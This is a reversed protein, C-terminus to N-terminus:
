PLVLNKTIREYRARHINLTKTRGEDGEAWAELNAWYSPFRAVTQDKMEHLANFEEEQIAVWDIHEEYRGLRYMNAAIPWPQVYERDRNDIAKDIYAALPGPDGKKFELLHRLIPLVLAPDKRDLQQVLAEARAPDHEIFHLLTQITVPGSVPRFELAREYYDSAVDVAGMRNHTLAIDMIAVPWDPNLELARTSHVLAQEYNRSWLYMKGLNAERFANDNDVEGFAARAKPFDLDRFAYLQGRVGRTLALEPNLAEAKDLLSEIEAYTDEDRGPTYLTSVLLTRARSMLPEAFMPDLEIARDFHMLAEQIKAGWSWWEAFLGKRYANYAALSRTPQETRVFPTHEHDLFTQLELTIGRAIEDYLSFQEKLDASDLTYRGNWVEQGDMTDVLSVNVRTAEATTSVAGQVAYDINWRTGMDEFAAEGLMQTAIISIAPQDQLHARVEDSFMHAIYARSEDPSRNEFPLVTVIVRSDQDNTLRYPQTEGEAAEPAPNDDPAPYQWLIALAFVAAAVGALAWRSATKKTTGLPATQFSPTKELANVLAETFGDGGLEERMLAQRHSLSLRLGDPLETKELHAVLVDIRESQAFNLERRCHESAVSRQTIFYVFRSAGKIAGAIEENWEEGPEIGTTDYWVNVGREQLRRIEGFVLDKDAHAYSVFM